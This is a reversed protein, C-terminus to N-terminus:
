TAALLLNDSIESAGDCLCHCIYDYARMCVAHVCIPIACKCMGAHVIMDVCELAGGSGWM